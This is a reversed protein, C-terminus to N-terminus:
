QRYEKGSLGSTDSDEDSFSDPLLVIYRSPYLCPILSREWPSIGTQETYYRGISKIEKFIM